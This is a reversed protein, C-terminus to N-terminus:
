RVFDFPQTQSSQRSKLLNRRTPPDSADSEM